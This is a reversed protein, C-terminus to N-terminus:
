NLGVVGWSTPIGQQITENAVPASIDDNLASYGLLYTDWYSIDGSVRSQWLLQPYGDGLLSAVGVIRLDAPANYVLPVRVGTDTVGNMPWYLVDNTVSNEWILDNQGDGNIDAVAVLHWALPVGRALAGKTGVTTGNMQWYAVDGTISNQFLLDPKGDGTIDAVAVVKWSLPVGQAIIGRVGTPQTGSFQWYIVDGSLSNQWLLAPSGNGTIDAYGVVKWALPVGQALLVRSGSDSVGNLSWALVDDSGSNQFVLPHVGNSAPVSGFEFAGMDPASGVARKGGDKDAGPEPLNPSAAGANVCPSSATLHFDGGASNVFQPDASINGVGPYGGQIDSNTITLGAVAGPTAPYKGILPFLGGTAANGWVISNAVIPPNNGNFSNYVGGYNGYSNNNVVSCHLLVVDSVGGGNLDATNGTFVSNVAFGNAMGGGMVGATNGTFLCNFAKGEMGGGHSATNGAFLCNIASGNDMGGGSGANNNTFVCNIAIGGALGGGFGTTTNNTFICRVITAQASAAYIGGGENSKGNTITFGEIRAQGPANM